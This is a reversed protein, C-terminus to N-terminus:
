NCVGPNPNVPCNLGIVIPASSLAVTESGGLITPVVGAMGPRPCAMAFSANHYVAFELRISTGEDFGSIAANPSNSLLTPVQAFSPIAGMPFQLCRGDLPQNTAPDIVHLTITGGLGFPIQDVPCNFCNPSSYLLQIDVDLQEDCAAQLSLLFWAVVFARTM